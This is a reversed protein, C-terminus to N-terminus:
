KIKNMVILYKHTNLKCSKDVSNYDVSFDYINRKLSVERSEFANFEIFISGLCVQALFNVNENCTKFKFIEKSNVFLYSNHSICHLSLYFIRM